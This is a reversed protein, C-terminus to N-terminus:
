SDPVAAAGTSAEIEAQDGGFLKEDEFSDCPRDEEGHAKVESEISEGHFLLVPLHTDAKKCSSRGHM